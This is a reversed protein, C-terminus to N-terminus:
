PGARSPQVFGGLSTGSRYRVPVGKRQAWRDLAGELWETNDALVVGGPPIKGDVTSLEWTLNEATHLDDHLFLDLRDLSAVLGPLHERNPGVRLDWGTRLGPPVAWGSERGPPLAVPSDVGEQFAPGQQRTPLDISHLTGGENKRLALLLYTSSIGSSVGVEVVHRPSLARVLAYLELPARIQAFFTRGAAEYVSRIHQAVATEGAAEAMLERARAPSIRALDSVWVPDPDPDLFELAFSEEPM